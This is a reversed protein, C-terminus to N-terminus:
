GFPWLGEDWHLQWSAHFHKSPWPPTPRQPKTAATRVHGPLQNRGPARAPLWRPQDRRGRQWAPLPYVIQPCVIGMIAGMQDEPINRVEFHRSAQSRGPVRDKGQDQDARHRSASKTSAMPWLRPKWASSSTWAPSSKNSCSPPSNPQELSLDKWTCASSRSFPTNDQDAM